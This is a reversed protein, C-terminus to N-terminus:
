WFASSSSRELTVDPHKCCRWQHNFLPNRSFACKWKWAMWRGGNFKMKKASNGGNNNREHYRAQRPLYLTFTPQTNVNPYWM